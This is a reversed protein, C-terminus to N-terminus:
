LVNRVAELCYTSIGNVENQRSDGSFFILL